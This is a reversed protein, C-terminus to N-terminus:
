EGPWVLKALDERDDVDLKICARYIHGEVTRVSVTLREAIQKNSLGKAVLAAIERERATVPLPTTASRLAPTTAGDCAAALRNMRASSDAREKRRKAHEHLGTAAAASDAASLMLGLGEFERSVADLEAADGSAMAAAHRAFLGVVRGQNMHILGNLRDAVTKSGFRAAHHLAEAEVAFQGSDHALDAAEMLLEVSRRDAGSASQLWALAVIRQPQHIAVHPGVHEKAEEFVREAARIDGLAAYSRVLLLRAPLRWPLSTEANLAALAQEISSIAARFEGRYTAVVGEAIKEIAWGAFQGASSYQAYEDVRRQAQDLDGITTLALVDGYRVMVKIMGDTAKHEPRCRAAIPEFDLGRGAVPMALGAAFAAFDVAQGPAGPDGLVKEALAIGGDINNEHVMIAANVADAVSRLAPHEVQSDMLAILRRAETTDGQSWFRRSLRPVSWQVLELENLQDPDFGDLAEDAEELRGQWWLARSLLEAAALDGGREYAARALREGLPLNALAVADKGATILLSVDTDQDGDVCLEALRIRDAATSSSNDRLAAVLRSRLKRGAATGIRRRLVDGYLPHSFRVNTLSADRTVRILGSVEAVDVADEGSLSILTDIDLPESLALLKLADVVDDGVQDLRDNILALLGSPVATPGRLQWVGDTETLTGAALGGEVMNRLFLPNGESSEWMVDASLGELTGGIALEILETCEDNNLATLEIRRLHADKWLSTVADPVPEGSRITAVIRASGEMAIQHLLTASLQDLLHADDVGIVPNPEALLRERASVLARIPDRSATPEVWPAFAGLPISQSSGTCAAWFVPCSLDDTVARAITTKGVGASGVLVVGRSDAATLADNIRRKETPRGLMQWLQGM